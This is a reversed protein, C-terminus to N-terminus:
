KGGGGTRSLGIFSCGESLAINEFVPAGAFSRLVQRSYKGTMQIEGSDTNMTSVATAVRSGVIKGRMKHRLGAGNGAEYLEAQFQGGNMRVSASGTNTLWDGSASCSAEAWKWEREGQGWMPPQFAFVLFAVAISRKM